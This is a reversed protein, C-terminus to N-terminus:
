KVQNWKLFMTNYKRIKWIAAGEEMKQFTVDIKETYKYGIANKVVFVFEFDLQKENDSIEIEVIFKNFRDNLTFYADSPIIYNKRIIGNISYRLDFVIVNANELVYFKIGNKSKLNFIGAVVSKNEEPM